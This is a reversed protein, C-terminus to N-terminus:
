ERPRYDPSHFLCDIEGASAEPANLGVEILEFADDGSPHPVGVAMGGEGFVFVHFGSGGAMGFGDFNVILVAFDRERIKQFVIKTEDIGKGDVALAVVFAGLIPGADIIDVNEIPDIGLYEKGGLQPLAIGDFDLLHKVEEWGFGIVLIIQFLVRAPIAVDIQTQSTGLFLLAGLSIFFRVAHTRM